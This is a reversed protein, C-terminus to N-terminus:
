SAGEADVLPSTVVGLAARSRENAPFLTEIRLEQLTIDLPTGLTTITTFLELLLADRQLKVPILIAPPRTSDHAADRLEGATAIARALM